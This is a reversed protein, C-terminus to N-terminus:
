THCSQLVCPADHEGIPPAVELAYVSPDPSTPSVIRDAMVAQLAAPHALAVEAGFPRTPALLLVGGTIVTAGASPPGGTTPWATELVLPVHFLLGM